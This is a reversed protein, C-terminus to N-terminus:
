VESLTNKSLHFPKGESDKYFTQSMCCPAVFGDSRAELHIFPLICFTSKNMSYFLWKQFYTESHSM